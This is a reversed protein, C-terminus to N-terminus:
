EEKQWLRGLGGLSARDHNVPLSFSCLLTTDVPTPSAMVKLTNAANQATDIRNM